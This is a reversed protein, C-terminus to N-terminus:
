VHQCSKVVFDHTASMDGVRGLQASTLATNGINYGRHQADPDDKQCSAPLCYINNNSCGMVLSMMSTPHRSPGEWNFHVGGALDTGHADCTPKFNSNTNDVTLRLSM